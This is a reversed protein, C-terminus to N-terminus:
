GSKAIREKFANMNFPRGLFNKVADGAPINGGPALVEDRYRHTAEIDM